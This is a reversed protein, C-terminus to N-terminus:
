IRADNSSYKFQKSNKFCQSSNKNMLISCFFLLFLFLFFFLFNLSTFLLTMSYIWLSKVFFPTSNSVRTCLRLEYMCINMADFNRIWSIFRWSAASTLCRFSFQEVKSRFRHNLFYSPRTTIVRLFCRGTTRWQKGFNKGERFAWSGEERKICDYIKIKLKVRLGSSRWEGGDKKKRRNGTADFGTSLISKYRAALRQRILPNSNSFRSSARYREM